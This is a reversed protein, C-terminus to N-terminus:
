WFRWLKKTNSKRTTIYESNKIMFITPQLPFKISFDAGTSGTLGILLTPEISPQDEPTQHPVFQESSFGICPTSPHNPELTYPNHLYYKTILELNEGGNSAVYLKENTTLIIYTASKDKAMEDKQVAEFEDLAANFKWAWMATVQKTSTRWLGSAKYKQM